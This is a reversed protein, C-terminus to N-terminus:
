SMSRQLEDPDGARRGPDGHVRGRRLPGDRRRACAPRRTVPDTGTVASLDSWTQLGDVDAQSLAVQDPGPVTPGLVAWAHEIEALPRGISEAATRLSHVRRGSRMQADGALAFLRGEREAEVMEDARSASPTSTSSCRAAPTRTPSAPRRGAPDLDIM